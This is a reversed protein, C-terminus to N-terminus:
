TMRIYHSFRFALLKNTHGTPGKVKKLLIQSIFFNTYYLFMFSYLLHSWNFNPAFVFISPCFCYHECRNNKIKNIFNLEFPKNM